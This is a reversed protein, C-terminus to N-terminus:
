TSAPAASFTLTKPCCVILVLLSFSTIFAMLALSWVHLRPGARGPPVQRFDDAATSCLSFHHFFIGCLIDDRCMNVVESWQFHTSPHHNIFILGFNGWFSGLFNPFGNVASEEVCTVKSWPADFWSCNSTSFQWFYFSLDMTDVIKLM